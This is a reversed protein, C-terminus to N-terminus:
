RYTELWKADHERALDKNYQHRIAHATSDTTPRIGSSTSPAAVSEKIMNLKSPDRGFVLSVATDILSQVAANLSTLYENQLRAQRPLTWNPYIKGHNGRTGFRPFKALLHGCLLCTKKSIGFYPLLEFGGRDPHLFFFLMQIEAHVHLPQGLVVEFNRFKTDPAQETMWSPLEVGSARSYADIVGIAQRPSPRRTNSVGPTEVFDITVRSLSPFRKAADLITDYAIKLRGLFSVLELTSQVQGQKITRSLCAKIDVARALGYANEVISRALSKNGAQFQQCDNQLNAFDRATDGENVPTPSRCQTNRRMGHIFQRVNYEIRRGYFVLLLELLRTEQEHNDVDLVTRLDHDAKSIYIKGLALNELCSTLDRSFQDDVKDFKKNRSVFITANDEQEVMATCSVFNIPEKERAFIEALRDLFRKLLDGHSTGALTDLVNTAADPEDEHEKSVEMLSVLPQRQQKEIRAVCALTALQTEETVGFQWDTTADCEDAM